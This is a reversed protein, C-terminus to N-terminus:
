DAFAISQNGLRAKGGGAHWRGDFLRGLGLPQEAASLANFQGPGPLRLQEGAALNQFDKSELGSGGKICCDLKTGDGSAAMGLYGIHQVTVTFGHADGVLDTVIEVVQPVIGAQVM